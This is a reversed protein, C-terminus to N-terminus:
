VAMTRQAATSQRARAGFQPRRASLGGRDHHEARVRRGPSAMKPSLSPMTTTARWWSWVIAAAVSAWSALSSSMRASTRRTRPRHDLREVHEADTASWTDAPCPTASPAPGNKWPGAPTVAAAFVPLKMATLEDVDRTAGDIVFGAIGKAVCIDGLIDGFVARSTDGNANIALVDGPQGDDVARHIALNDGERGTSTARNRGTAVRPHGPPHRRDYFRRDVLDPYRRHTDDALTTKHKSGYRAGEWGQERM